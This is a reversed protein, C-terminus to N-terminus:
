EGLRFRRLEQSDFGHNESSDGRLIVIDALITALLEPDVPKTLHRDFGAATTRDRYGDEAHGTVAVLPILKPSAWERIRRALECGDMDPLSIDLIAADPRFEDLAAMAEAATSCVRAEFGAIELYIGITTASDRNDDVCLVRLGSSSYIDNM